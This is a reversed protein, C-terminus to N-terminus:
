NDLAILPDQFDKYNLTVDPIKNRLSEMSILKASEKQSQLRSKVASIIYQGKYKIANGCM